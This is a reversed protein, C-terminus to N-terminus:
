WKDLTAKGAAAVCDTKVSTAVKGYKTGAASEMIYFCNNAESFAAAIFTTGGTPMLVSVSKPGVSNGPAVTADVFAITPESDKLVTFFTSDSYNQLDANATKALTLSNRLSSQASRDKAKNQAGLFTPIAIALLIAIILVVVMLEILTFGEDKGYRGRAVRTKMTRLM